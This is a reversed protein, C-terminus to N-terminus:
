YYQEHNGMRKVIFRSVVETRLFLVILTKMYLFALSKLFLLLPLAFAWLLSIFVAPRALSHIRMRELLSLPQNTRERERERERWSGGKNAANYRAKTLGMNGLSISYVPPFSGM